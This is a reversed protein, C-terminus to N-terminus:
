NANNKVEKNREDIVSDYFYFEVKEKYDDVIVKPLRGVVIFGKPELKNILKDIWLRWEYKQWKFKIFGHVGLAIYTHHPFANLYEDNLSDAGGRANPFLPIGNNAFFYSLSLNDYLQAKQKVFPMDTHVSFDFGLIGKCRKFLNLYRRPNRRIREFTVDKSYFYIYYESLDGKYTVAKFFPMIKVPPNLPVMDERIIPYEEVKTFNAGDVLFAQFSDEVAEKRDKYMANGGKKTCNKKPYAVIYMDPTGQQM